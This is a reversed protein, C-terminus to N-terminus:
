FGAQLILNRFDPDLQKFLPRPLLPTLRTRSGDAVYEIKGPHYISSSNFFIKSLFLLSREEESSDLVEGSAFFALLSSTFEGSSTSTLALKPKFYNKIKTEKKKLLMKELLKRLRNKPLM